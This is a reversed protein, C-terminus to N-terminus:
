VIHHEKHQYTFFVNAPKTSDIDVHFFSADDNFGIRNFGAELLSRLIIFRNRSGIAEIDVALGKTHASGSVGGESANHNECRCWSRIVFPINALERAKNLMNLLKDEVHLFGCGCRCSAEETTFYHSGVLESM